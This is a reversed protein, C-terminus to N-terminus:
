KPVKYKRKEKMMYESINTEIEDLAQKDINSIVVEEKITDIIMKGWVIGQKVKLDNFLDPTITTYFFGFLLRKQALIIRKNTLTVVYTCMINLPNYNRQGAFVYLVEEGPNLFKQIVKSHKKIRWAVTMPYRKKFAKAQEYITM